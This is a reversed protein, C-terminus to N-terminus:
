KLLIAEQSLLCLVVAKPQRRLMVFMFFIAEKTLM